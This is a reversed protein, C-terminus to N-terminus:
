NCLLSLVPCPTLDASKPVATYACHLRLKRMQVTFSHRPDEGRVGVQEHSIVKLLARLDSGILAERPM